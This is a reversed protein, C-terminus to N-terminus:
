IIAITVAINFDSPLQQSYCQYQSIQIFPSDLPMLIAKDYLASFDSSQDGEWLMKGPSRMPM